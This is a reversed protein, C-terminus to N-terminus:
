VLLGAGGLFAGGAAFSLGMALANRVKATAVRRWKPMRDFLFFEIGDLCKAVCHVTVCRFQRISFSM